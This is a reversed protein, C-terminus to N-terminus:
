AALVLERTPASERAGRIISRQDREASHTPCYVGRVRGNQLGYALWVDGLWAFHFFRDGRGGARQERAWAATVVGTPITSRCSCGDSLYGSSVCRLALDSRSKREIRRHGIDTFIEAFRDTPRLREITALDTQFGNM